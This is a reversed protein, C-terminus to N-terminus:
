CGPMLAILVTLMGQQIIILKMVEIYKSIHVNEIRNALGPCMASVKNLGVNGEKQLRPSLRIETGNNEGHQDSYEHSGLVKDTRKCQTQEHICWFCNSGPTRNM